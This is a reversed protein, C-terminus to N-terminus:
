NRRMNEMFKTVKNWCTNSLRGLTKMFEIVKYLMGLWGRTRRNLCAEVRSAM